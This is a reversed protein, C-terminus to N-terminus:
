RTLTRYQIENVPLELVRAMPFCAMGTGRLPAFSMSTLHGRIVSRFDWHGDGDAEFPLPPKNWAGRTRAARKHGKTASMFAQLRM